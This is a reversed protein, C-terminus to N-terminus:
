LTAKVLTLVQQDSECNFASVRPELQFPKGSRPRLSQVRQLFRAFFVFVVTLAMKEGICARAGVGFTALQAVRQRRLTMDDDDDLFRNPAFAEPDQWLDADHNVSYLNFLVATDKPLPTGGLSTDCTTLHPLSFPSAPRIRLVELICANIFACTNRDAAEPPRDGIRTDIEARCRRLIQLCVDVTTAISLLPLSIILM